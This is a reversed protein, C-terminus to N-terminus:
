FVDPENMGAACPWQPDEPAVARSRWKAASAEVPALEATSGRTQDKNERPIAGKETGGQWGATKEGKKGETVCSVVAFRM